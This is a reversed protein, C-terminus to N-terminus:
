WSYIKFAYLQCYSGNTKVFMLLTNSCNGYRTFSSALFIESKDLDFDLDDNANHILELVVLMNKVSSDNDHWSFFVFFFVFFFLFCFLFLFLFFCFLVFCFLFCFLFCVCVNTIVTEWRTYPYYFSQQLM